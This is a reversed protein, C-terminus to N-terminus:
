LALSIARRHLQHATFEEGNVVATEGDGLSSALGKWALQTDPSISLARHFLETPSTETCDDLFITRPPKERSGSTGAFTFALAAHTDASQQRCVALEAALEAHSLVTGDELRVASEWEETVGALHALAAEKCQVWVLQHNLMDDFSAPADAVGREVDGEAPLRSGRTSLPRVASLALELSKQFLLDKPTMQRGGIRPSAGGGSGGEVGAGGASCMALLSYPIPSTPDLAIATQLLEEKRMESGDDFVTSGGNPLAMGVCAYAYAHNRRINECRRKLGDKTVINEGATGGEKADPSVVKQEAPSDLAVEGGAPLACALESLIDVTSREFLLARKIRTHKDVLHAGAAHSWGLPLCWGLNSYAVTTEGANQLALARRLLNEKTMKTGDELRIYPKASSHICRALSAYAIHNCPDLHIARKFLDQLSMTSGDHMRTAPPLSGGVAGESLCVGLNIYSCSRSWDLAISRKLLYEPTVERGDDLATSGGKPTCTALGLWAEAHKSNLAISKKFLMGRTYRRSGEESPLTVTETNRLCWGLNSYPTPNLPDVEISLVLMEERSLLRRGSSGFPSECPVAPDVSVAAANNLLAPSTRIDTAAALIERVRLFADAVWGASRQLPTRLYIKGFDQDTLDCASAIKDVSIGGPLFVRQRLKVCGAAVHIDAPITPTHSNHNNDHCDQLHLPRGAKPATLCNQKSRPSAAPELCVLGRRHKDRAGEAPHMVEFCAARGCLYLVTDRCATCSYIASSRCRSCRQVM